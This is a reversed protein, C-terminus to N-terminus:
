SRKDTENEIENELIEHKKRPLLINYSRIKKCRIKKKERRRENQQKKVYRTENRM